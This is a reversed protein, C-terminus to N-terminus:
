PLEFPRWYYRIKSLVNGDFKLVVTSYSGPENFGWASQQALYEIEDVSAGVTSVWRSDAVCRFVILNPKEAFAATLEEKLQAVNKAKAAQAISSSSQYTLNVQGDSQITFHASAGKSDTICVGPVDLGEDLEDMDDRRIVKDDWIWPLVAPVGRNGLNRLVVAKGMGVKLGSFNDLEVGREMCFVLGTSFAALIGVAAGVLTVTSRFRM